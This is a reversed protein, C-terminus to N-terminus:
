TNDNDGNRFPNDGIIPNRRQYDALARKKGAMYLLSVDLYTLINVWNILRASYHKHRRNRILIPQLEQHDSFSIVTKGGYAYYRFYKLELPAKNFRFLEKCTKRCDILYWSAFAKARFSEGDGQWLTAGLGLKWFNTTIIKKRPDSHALCTARGTDLKHTGLRTLNWDM